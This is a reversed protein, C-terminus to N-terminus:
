HLDLAFIFDLKIQEYNIDIVTYTVYERKM